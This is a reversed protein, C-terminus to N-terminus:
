QPLAPAEGIPISNVYMMGDRAEFDFRVTEGGEDMKGFSEVMLQVVMAQQPPIRGSKVLSNIFGSFGAVSLTATGRPVDDVLTGEGRGTASLGLANVTLDNLRLDRVDVPMGDRMANAFAEANSPPTSFIAAGEVDVTLTGIERPFAGQPDLMTWLLEDLTVDAIRVRYAFPQPDPDAGGPIRTAMDITGVGVDVPRDNLSRFTFTAGLDTLTAEGAMEPGRPDSRAQVAGGRFAIRGPSATDSGAIVATGDFGALSYRFALRPVDAESRRAAKGSTAVDRITWDVDVMGAGDTERSFRGGLSTARGEFAVDEDERTTTVVLGDSSLDVSVPEDGAGPMDLVIRQADPFTFTVTDPAMVTARAEIWPASWAFGTIRADKSGQGSLRVEPAVIRGEYGLPFGGIEIAEYAAEGGRERILQAQTEIEGEIRGKGYFWLGTWALALIGVLAVLAKRMAIM